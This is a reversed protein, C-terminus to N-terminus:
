PRVEARSPTARALTELFSRASEVTVAELAGLADRAALPDGTADLRVGVLAARGAPTRAGMLLDSRLRSVAREVAAPSLDAATEAVVSEVQRRMEQRGAAYAAGVVALVKADPLQWLQVEAEFNGASARLREAVLLAAVEARPDLPDEVLRAEGFWYRIV